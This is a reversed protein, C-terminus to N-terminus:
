TETNLGAGARSIPNRASSRKEKFVTALRNLFTQVQGPDRLRYRAATSRPEDMVVIGIGDDNIARFADEDTTDDGIYLPLVNTRELDLADLIWRLAKGKDWEMDPQLEHVKKGSSRRLGDFRSAVRDVVTEVEEVKEQPVNRYHVAISFRKRELLLGEIKGLRERLMSEAEDLDPLFERGQQFTEREHGPGTIDFGHSGAYYIDDIGVKERVDELDRGSIVAVTFRETLRLLTDRMSGSLVARDPSAVIPTLTGDYDLFIVLTKDRGEKLLESACDLASPPSKADDMNVKIESLASVVVDAGRQKLAAKSGGRNVGIVRGFGGRKGAEVGALADEVVVAQGPRTGLRRAAELFIDPSPKGKLGLKESEVGDVRTEFLAEIKAGNLVAACNKSSSVVATKIGAGRLRRVLEIGSEYVEVGRTQLLDQFLRNKQNGLGYITEKGPSDEPKGYPLQINRSELFSQVGEYRPKGDVYRLYDDSKDFPPWEGHSKERYEDFVAKWAAAHIKATRTLVGDMDFIAVDFKSGNIIMDGNSTTHSAKERNM